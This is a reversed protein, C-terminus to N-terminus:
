RGYDDEYRVIDDEGLYSGTQVEIIRVTASTRNHVRHRSETPIWIDTGAPMDAVRDDVTITATGSVVTWHEARFQHSQLSLRRGPNIDLWKVQYGSGADLVRYAGWPKMVQPRQIAEKRNHSLLKQAIVRVEQSRDKRCVLVADGTEVIVLDDLGIAAVLHDEARILTNTVDLSIVDGSLANGSGDKRVIEYLAAWSGVDSWGMDAPIVAIRGSRELIGYDVSISELQQYLADLRRPDDGIALLKGYHDPLYQKMESLFDGAKWVFIGGNWLYQGSTFYAEATRRDPKETFRAVRFIEPGNSIGPSNVARRMDLPSGKQIYGYGTEPHRPQIGLTVLWGLSAAEVGLNLLNIFKSQEGIYHDSPLVVLIGQPDERAIEAAALGIAAATNKGVPEELVKIKKEFGSSFLEREIEDKQSRITVIWIREEPVLALARDITLALMSRDSLIPLFQKPMKERSLPWFRTGSGGALIVVYLSKKEPM